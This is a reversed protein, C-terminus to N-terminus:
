PPARAGHGAALMAPLRPKAQGTRICCRHTPRIRGQSATCIRM